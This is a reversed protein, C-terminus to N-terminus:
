CYLAGLYPKDQTALISSLEETYSLNDTEHCTISSAPIHLSIEYIFM